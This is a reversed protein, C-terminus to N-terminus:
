PVSVKQIFINSIEKILVLFMGTIVHRMIGYAIM